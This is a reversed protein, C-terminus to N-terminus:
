QFFHRRIEEPESTLAPKSWEPYDVLRIEKLRDDQSPWRRLVLAYREGDITVVKVEPRQYEVDGSLKVLLRNLPWPWSSFRSPEYILEVYWADQGPQLRVAYFPLEDLTRFRDYLQPHAKLDDM